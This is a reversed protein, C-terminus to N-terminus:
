NDSFVIANVSLTTANVQGYVVVKQGTRFTSFTVPSSVPNVAPGKAEAHGAAMVLSLLFFVLTSYLFKKPFTIHKM